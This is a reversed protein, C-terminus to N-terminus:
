SRSWTQRLCRGMAEHALMIPIKSLQLSQVSQGPQVAMSMSQVKTGPVTKLSPVMTRWFSDMSSVGVVTAAKTWLTATWATSCPFLCTRDTGFRSEQSWPRTTPWCTALAVTVKTPFPRHLILAEWTRGHGTLNWNIWQFPLLQLILGDKLKSFRKRLDQNGEGLMVQSEEAQQALRHLRSDKPLLILTPLLLGASIKSMLLKLSCLERKLLCMWITELVTTLRLRLLCLLRQNRVTLKLSFILPSDTSKLQNRTPGPRSNNALGASSASTKALNSASWLRVVSALSPRTLALRWNTLSPPTWM